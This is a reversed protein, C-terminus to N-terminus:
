DASATNRRDLCRPLDPWSDAAPATTTPATSAIVKTTNRSTKDVPQPLERQQQESAMRYRLSRVIESNKSSLNRKAEVTLWAKVDDPLRILMKSSEDSKM